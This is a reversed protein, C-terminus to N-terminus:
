RNKLTVVVIEPRNFIRFKIGGYGLGRSVIMQTDGKKYIGESYKPFLKRQPSLLGGIGPIRIIGGHVHGSFVLDFGVESYADFSFPNHALLVNFKKNDLVGIEKIIDQKSIKEKYCYKFKTNLDTKLNYGIGYLKIKDTVFLSGNNLITVGRKKMESM